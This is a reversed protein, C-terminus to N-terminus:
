QMLQHHDVGDREEPGIYNEEATNSEPETESVM